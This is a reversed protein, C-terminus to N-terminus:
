TRPPATAGQTGATWAAAPWPCALCGSATGVERAPHTCCGAETCCASAPAEESPAPCPRFLAPTLRPGAVPPAPMPRLRLGSAAAPLAAFFRPLGGEAPGTLLLGTPGWCGDRVLSRTPLRASTCRPATPWSFLGPDALCAPLRALCCGPAAAAAAAGPPPDPDAHGGALRKLAVPLPGAGPPWASLAEKMSRTLALWVMVNRCCAMAAPALSCRAAALRAPLWTPAGWLAGEIGNSLQM